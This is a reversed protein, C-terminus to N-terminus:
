MLDNVGSHGSASYMMLNFFLSAPANSDRSARTTPKGDHLKKPLRSSLGADLVVSIVDRDIAICYDRKLFAKITSEFTTYLETFQQRNTVFEIYRSLDNDFYDRIEDTDSSAISKDYSDREGPRYELGILTFSSPLLKENRRVNQSMEVFLNPLIDKAEELLKWILISNRVIGGYRHYFQEYEALTDKQPVIMTYTDILM